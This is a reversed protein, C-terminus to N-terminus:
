RDEETEGEVSPGDSSVSEEDSEGRVSTFLQRDPNNRGSQLDDSTVDLERGEQLPLPSSTDSTTFFDDAERLALIPDISPWHIVVGSPTTTM